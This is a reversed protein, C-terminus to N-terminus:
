RTRYYDAEEGSVQGNVSGEDELYLEKGIEWATEEVFEELKKAAVAM